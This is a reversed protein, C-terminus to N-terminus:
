RLHRRPDGAIRQRWANRWTAQCAEVETVNEQETRAARHVYMGTGTEVKHTLSKEKVISSDLKGCLCRM